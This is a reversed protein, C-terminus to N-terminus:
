QITFKGKLSFKTQETGEGPVFASATGKIIVKIKGKPKETKKDIKIKSIKPEQLVVTIDVPDILVGFKDMVAGSIAQAFNEALAALSLADIQLQIKKGKSDLSWLGTVDDVGSGLSFTSDPFLTLIDDTGEDVDKGLGKAKFTTKSLLPYAGIVDGIVAANLQTALGLSIVM